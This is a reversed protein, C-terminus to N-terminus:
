RTAASEVFYGDIATSGDVSMNFSEASLPKGCNSYTFELIPSLLLEHEPYEYIEDLCKEGVAGESDIYM